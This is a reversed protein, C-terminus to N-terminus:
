SIMGRLCRRSSPAFGTSSRAPEIATKIIGGPVAPSRWIRHVAGLWLLGADANAVTAAVPQNFRM